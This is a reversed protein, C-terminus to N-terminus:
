PMLRQNPLRHRKTSRKETPLPGGVNGAAARPTKTQIQPCEGLCGTGSAMTTREFDDTEDLHYSVRPLIPTAGTCCVNAGVASLHWGRPCHRAVRRHAPLLRALAPQRCRPEHAGAVDLTACTRAPGGLRRLARMYVGLGALAVGSKLHSAYSYRSGRLASICVGDVRPLSCRLVRRPPAGARSSSRTRGRLHRRMM